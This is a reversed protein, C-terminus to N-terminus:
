FKVSVESRVFVMADGQGKTAAYDSYYNGMQLYEAGLSAAIASTFNHTIKAKYLNGKDRSGSAVFSAGNNQREAARLYAYMLLLSDNKTVALTTEARYMHTNNYYAYAGNEMAGLYGFIDCIPVTRGFVPNFGENKGVTDPNDGSLYMYGLSAKPSLVVDKFTGDLYAYGGFAGIKNTQNVGNVPVNDMNGFQYAGQGRLAFTENFKYKAYSGITSFDDKYTRVSTGGAADDFKYIYYTEFETNAITTSDKYIAAYAAEREESLALESSTKAHGAATSYTPSEGMIPLFEDNKPQLIGLFDVAKKDGVNLTAKAANFYMTRSGDLPTGDAILFSDNYKLDQRGIRLDVLGNGLGKVDTYLNDVVVEENLPRQGHDGKATNSQKYAYQRPESMLRVYAGAETAFGLDKQYASGWLQIRERFYSQNDRAASNFDTSNEALEHRLRVAGGGKLDVAHANQVGFVTVLM